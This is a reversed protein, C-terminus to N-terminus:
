NSFDELLSLLNERGTVEIGQALLERDYKRLASVDIDAVFSAESSSDITLRGNVARVVYARDADAPLETEAASTALAASGTILAVAAICLAIASKKM